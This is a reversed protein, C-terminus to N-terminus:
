HASFEPSSGRGLIHPHGGEYVASLQVGFGTVAPSSADTKAAFGVHGFATWVPSVASFAAIDPQFSVM